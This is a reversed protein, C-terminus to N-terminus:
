EERVGLWIEVESNKGNQSKSGYIELDYLYSRNLNKDNQWIEQWTEILASPMEGKSVIKKFSQTPFERGIMGEPIYQLDSVKAGIIATYKGQYDSEYDTYIVFIDESAKNPISSLLNEGMFKGWLNGLDQASQGNKNTTEVQIGIFKM